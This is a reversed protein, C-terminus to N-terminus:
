VREARMRATRRARVALVVGGALLGAALWAIMADAVGGTPALDDPDEGTGAQGGGSGDPDDGAGNSDEGSGDSDDGSGGQGGGSGDSEDGADGQDDGSDGQDDGADDSDGPEEGPGDGAASATIRIEDAGAAPGFLTPDDPVFALAYAHEGEEDPTVAATASGDAVDARAIEDGSGAESVVIEGAAGPDVSVAIQVTEGVEVADPAEGSVAPVVPNVVDTAVAFVHMNPASPLVIEALVKDEPVSVPATAYVGCGIHEAGTGQGRQGPKAVSINGESPSGTCWDSLEVAEEQTTGDSFALTLTGSAADNNASGILSISRTRKDSLPVEITQGDARVNDPEGPAVAPLVFTLDTGPVSGGAGQIFGGDALLDRLLYNGQGDFDANAEGVDGIGVNDFAPALWAEDAIAVTVAQEVSHGADDTVTATVPYRGSVFGDAARVTVPVRAVVPLGGSEAQWVEPESEVSIASSDSELSITGSAEGESQAIVAVDFTTSEGPAVVPVAPDAATMLRSPTETPPNLAGPASGEGTAWDSPDAGVDFSIVGAGTLESGRLYGRELPADGVRVSQIYRADDSVGPAEVTLSSAGAYESDLAIEVSPFAPTALAWVDDGPVAPYIGISAFVYWASMTGLDDNGTVGDPGDTFLTRAGRLVDATKWPQGTWLYAYPSHLGPENNPNYTDQGYYDYTGNVWRERATTEPDEVLEDYVFLDDLRSEAAEAGGFVDILGPYDHPAMWAYQPSTGEHFGDTHAPDPDGVFFGSRDRPRFSDTTTDFIARYNQARQAYRDADDDHGLERAMMALLGDSLAYELTASAGHHLDYDGPRGNENPQHPVYGQELYVPNGVRGNAPSEEPPLNDANHSLIAYTEEEYGELLGQKWASVLFATGPDGTMVNTEVPGYGWRPLVGYQEAATILSLAMDRSEDPALLFLLQQQTRYTDWLSYNQYYTFDDAVHIEGDWGRYRGDADSGTNPALFSRYLASYFVRAENEDDRPVDITRLREEWAADAAVRAEDFTASEAALNGVAGDADVYSLSTVAEVTQDSTADFTVYAGTREGDASAGGESVDDGDWTGHAEFPRDFTTRTHVTFPETDQCFGRSTITTDITTDDVIEVSSHDVRNLAQGPNILVKADDTEPFTYRQVGTRETASLEVDIQGDPADLQVRYYGPAAEEGEHSYTLAYDANNTSEIDGTTPLVPLLGGIPCGVGSIHVLSFGRIRDNGYEYGVGHGNDPSFQVMGFPVAAGPYTNGDDKTGIFPNVYSTLSVDDDPEEAATATPAALAGAAAIGFVAAAAVLGRAASRSTRRFM